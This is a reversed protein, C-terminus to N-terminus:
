RCYLTFLLLNKYRCTSSMFNCHLNICHLNKCLNNMSIKCLYINEFKLRKREIEFINIKTLYRILLNHKM